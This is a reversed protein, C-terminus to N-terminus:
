LRVACNIKGGIKGLIASCVLLLFSLLINIVPNNAGSSYFLIISIILMSSATVIKATLLITRLKRFRIKGDILGFIGAIIIFFPMLTIFFEATNAVIIAYFDPYLYDFALLSFLIISGAVPLHALIPHIHNELYDSRNKEILPKYDKFVAKPMGCAPCYDRLNKKEMVYGCANCKVLVM